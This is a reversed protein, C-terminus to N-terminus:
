ATGKSYVYRLIVTLQHKGISNVAKAKITKSLCTREKTFLIADQIKINVDVVNIYTHLLSYLM